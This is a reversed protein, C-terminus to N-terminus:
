IITGGMANILADAIIKHGAPDPHAGVPDLRGIQDTQPIYIGNTAIALHRLGRRFHNDEPLNWCLDNVYVRTSYKKAEAIVVNIKRTFESKKTPFHSDNYGLSFIVTGARAMTRIVNDDLGVLRLGNNSYNNVVLGNLDNYYGFGSIVVTNNDLTEIHIKGDAIRIPGARRVGGLRERSNVTVSARGSKMIFMGNDIASTYYVYAYQYAGGVDVDFTLGRQEATLAFTGLNEPMREERWLTNEDRRIQHIEDYRGCSNWMSSEASAFGYNKLLGKQALRNKLLGIYSQNPIDPCNAGHTISDGFVAIAYDGFDDTKAINM